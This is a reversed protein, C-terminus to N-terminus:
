RHEIRRPKELEAPDDRTREPPIARHHPRFARRVFMV